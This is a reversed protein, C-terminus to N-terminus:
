ETAQIVTSQPRAWAAECCDMDWIEQIQWGLMGYHPDLFIVSCVSDLTCEETSILKMITHSSGFLVELQMMVSKSFDFTISLQMTIGNLLFTQRDKHQMAVKCILVFTQLRLKENLTFDNGDQDM